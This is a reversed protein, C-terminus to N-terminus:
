LVEQLGLYGGLYTSGSVFNITLSGSAFDRRTAEEQGPTDLILLSKDTEPLYVQDTGREMFLKLLQASQRALGNFATDDAYFM